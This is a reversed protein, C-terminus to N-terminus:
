KSNKNSKSITIWVIGIGITVGLAVSFNKILSSNPLKLLIDSMYNMSFLLLFIIILSAAMLKKNNMCLRGGNMIFEIPLWNRLMMM